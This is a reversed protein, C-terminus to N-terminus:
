GLGAAEVTPTSVKFREAEVWGTGSMTASAADPSGPKTSIGPAVPVPTNATAVTLRPTSAVIVAAALVPMALRGTVSVIHWVLGVLPAQMVAGVGLTVISMGGLAVGVKPMKTVPLAGTASMGPTLRMKTVKASLPPVRRPSVETATLVCYSHFVVDSVAFDGLPAVTPMSAASSGAPDSGLAIKAAM